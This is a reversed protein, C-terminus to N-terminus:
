AHYATIMIEIFFGLGTYFCILCLTQSVTLIHPPNFNLNPVM